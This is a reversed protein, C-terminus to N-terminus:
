SRRPLLLLRSVQNRYTRYAPDEGWKEEGRKELLPIGSVRTLLIAVFVPSLLGIWQGGVFVGAGVVAIGTWLLIEGFYNPHQSYRWLGEDIWGGTRRAAFAKKQRDSIVEIGFGLGWLAFGLADLITLPGGPDARTNIILACVATFFVWLGQITWVSLFRLPDTKLHDFRGDKGDRRIRAFLFTGLRIAWVCVMGSVIFQRLGPDPSLALSVAILTLYTLSGTLDFFRESQSLASPLWVLWQIGMSLGACLVLLSVGGVVSGGSAGLFAVGGALALCVTTVIAARVASAPSTTM